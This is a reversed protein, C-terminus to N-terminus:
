LVCVCECVCACVWAHACVCVSVCVCVKFRKEERAKMQKYSLKRHSDYEAEEDLHTLVFLSVIVVGSGGSVVISMSVVM